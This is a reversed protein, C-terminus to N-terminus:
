RFQTTSQRYPTSTLFNTLRDVVIYIRDKGQVKPLGTIFDMSISEWKHEPIPLLQLLGAPLVHESKNQQCTVCESIHRMVDQKLRKWSFREKIQRYTKFFGQHGAIPSDHVAIVIKKKLGLDPVLYVRDKYFIVNDIVRYRDDQIQGDMVECAFKNKSYEVLLHSKWDVLIEMLSCATPGRSLADAVINKKGKVYKIDFDFGQVKM